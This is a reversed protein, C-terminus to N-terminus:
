ATRILVASVVSFVAQTTRGSVGCSTACTCATTVRRETIGGNRIQERVHSAVVTPAIKGEDYGRFGIRTQDDSVDRVGTTPHVGRIPEDFYQDEARHRHM